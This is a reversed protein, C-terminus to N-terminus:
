LSSSLSAYILTYFWDVTFTFISTVIFIFIFWFILLLLKKRTTQQLIPVSFVYFECALETHKKLVRVSDSLKVITWQLHRSRISIDLQFVSIVETPNPPETQLDCWWRRGRFFWGVIASIASRKTSTWVGFSAKREIEHFNWPFAPQNGIQYNPRLTETRSAPIIIYQIYVCIIYM